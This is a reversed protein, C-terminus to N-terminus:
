LHHKGADGIMLNIAQMLEAARPVDARDLDDIFVFIRRKKAYAEVLRTFDEHFSEIFAVHGEYDPKSLYKELNISLPIKLQKLKFFGALALALLAGWKGHSLLFEYASSLQEPENKQDPKQPPTHPDVTLNSIIKRIETPRHAKVFSYLGTGGLVFCTLTFFLLALEAWGRLGKLRKFFLSIDGKWRMFFGVEKRLSKTFKLAFAAWLADQKDHRWANFRITIQQRQKVWSGAADKLSGPVGLGGMSQPLKQMFVDSRSPGRIAKELQLMFSSKGSGWEGEISMTLPPQTGASTLFATIADVYPGFGLSDESTPQDGVANAAITLPIQAPNTKTDAM